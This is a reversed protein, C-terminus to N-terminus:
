YNPPALARVVSVSGGRVCSSAWVVETGLGKPQHLSVRVVPHAAAAAAATARDALTATDGSGAAKPDRTPSVNKTCM